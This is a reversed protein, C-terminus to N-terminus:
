LEDDVDVSNRHLLVTPYVKNSDFDTRGVILEFLKRLSEEDKAFVGGEIGGLIIGTTVGVFGICPKITEVWEKPLQNVERSM